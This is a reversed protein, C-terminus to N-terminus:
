SKETRVGGRLSNKKCTNLNKQGEIQRRASGRRLRKLPNPLGKKGEYTNAWYSEQSMKTEGSSEDFLGKESSKSTGPSVSILRPPNNGSNKQHNGGAPTGKKEWFGMAGNERAQPKGGM